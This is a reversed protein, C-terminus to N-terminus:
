HRRSGRARRQDRWARGDDVVGAGDACCVHPMELNLGKWGERVWLDLRNLAVAKMQVRVQGPAPEVEPLDDVVRLVDRGGHEYIVAARM